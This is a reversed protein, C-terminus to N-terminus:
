SKKHMSRRGTGPTPTAQVEAAGDLDGSVQSMSGSNGKLPSEAKMPIKEEAIEAM